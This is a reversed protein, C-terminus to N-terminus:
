IRPDYDKLYPDTACKQVWASLGRKGIKRNVKDDVAKFSYFSRNKFFCRRAEKRWKWRFVNKNTHFNTHRIIKGQENTKKWNIPAKGQKQTSKSIYISGLRFGIDWRYKDRIIALSLEYFLDKMVRLYEERNLKRPFNEREEEYEEYFDVLTYSLHKM